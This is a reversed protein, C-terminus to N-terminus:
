IRQLNETVLKCRLLDRKVFYKIYGYSICFFYLFMYSIIPCINTCKHRETRSVTIEGM